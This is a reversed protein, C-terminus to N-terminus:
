DMRTRTGTEHNFTTLLHKYAILQDIKNQPILFCGTQGQGLIKDMGFNGLSALPGLAGTALGPLVKSALNTAMPLLRQPMKTGLSLLSSFLNGGRM